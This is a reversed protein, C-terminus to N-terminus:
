LPSPASSHWSTSLRRGGPSSASSSTKYSSVTAQAELRRIRETVEQERQRLELLRTLAAEKTAIRSRMVTADSEMALRDLAQTAIATPTTLVTTMNTAEALKRHMTRLEDVRGQAVNALTLVEQRLASSSGSPSGAEDDAARHWWSAPTQCAVGNDVDSLHLDTQTAIVVATGPRPEWQIGRDVTTVAGNRPQQRLPSANVANLALSNSSTPSSAGGHPAAQQQHRDNGTATPDKQKRAADVVSKFSAGRDRASTALGRPVPLKAANRLAVIADRVFRPVHLRMLRRLELIVDILGTRQEPGDGEIKTFVRTVQAPSLTACLGQIAATVDANSMTPPLQVLAAAIATQPSLKSTPDAAKNSFWAWDVPSELNAASPFFERAIDPPMRSSGVIALADFVDKLIAETADDSSSM